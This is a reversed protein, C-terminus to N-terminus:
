APRRSDPSAGIGPVPIPSPNPNPNPNAYAGPDPNPSFENVAKRKFPNQQHIPFSIKLDGSLVRKRLHKCMNISFGALHEGAVIEGYPATAGPDIFAPLPAVRTHYDVSFFLPMSYREAGLNIVRHQTAKFRDNTWAQLMDGINVIFTGEIPPAEVWEDAANMVQLGRSQQHLITFCEFDSHANIGLNLNDMPLDNAPYHLLRLQSPPKKAREVFFEDPLGLGVAFARFLRNGVAMIAQYYEMVDERLGPLWDPWQNPVLMINGSLFDADDSAIELALDFAAHLRPKTLYDDIPAPPPVLRYLDPDGDEDEASVPIWGRSGPSQSVHVRRKLEPASHHFRRSQSYAREILAAPVGHNQIYFFGVTECARGIKGATESFAARDGTLLPAIDIVPIETFPLLRAGMAGQQATEGSRM